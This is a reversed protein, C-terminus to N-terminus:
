FRMIPPQSVTKPKILLYQMHLIFLFECQEFFFKDLRGIIYLNNYFIYIYYLLRPAHTHIQSM